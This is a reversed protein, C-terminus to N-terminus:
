NQTHQTKLTGRDRQALLENHYCHITKNDPYGTGTTDHVADSEKLRKGVALVDLGMKDHAAACQAREFELGIERKALNLREGILNVVHVIQSGRERRSGEPRHSHNDGGAGHLGKRADHIGEAVIEEDPRRIHCQLLATPQYQKGALRWQMEPMCLEEYAGKFHTSNNHRGNRRQIVTWRRDRLDDIVRDSSNKVDEVDVVIENRTPGTSSSAAVACDDSRM